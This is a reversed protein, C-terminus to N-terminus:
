RLAEQRAVRMLVAPQVPEALPLVLRQSAVLRPPREELQVAARWRASLPAGAMVRM